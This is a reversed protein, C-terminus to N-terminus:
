SDRLHICLLRAFTETACIYFGEFDHLRLAGMELKVLLGEFDHLRLAGM